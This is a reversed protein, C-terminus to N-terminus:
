RPTIRRRRLRRPPRRRVPPRKIRAAARCCKDLMLALKKLLQCPQPGIVPCITQIVLKVVPGYKKWFKCCDDATLTRRSTLATLARLAPGIDRLSAARTAM